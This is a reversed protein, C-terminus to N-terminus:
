SGTPRPNNLLWVDAQSDLHSFLVTRGDRSIDEVLDGPDLMLVPQLQRTALTLVSILPADGSRGRQAVFLRSGDASWRMPELLPGAFLLRAPTGDLPALWVGRDQTRGWYFAISKGDPSQRPSAVFGLSTDVAALSTVQRTGTDALAFGRNGDRQFLVRGDMLWTINNSTTAAPLLTRTGSRPRILILSPPHAPSEIAVALAQGDGSWGLGFAGASGELPTEAMSRLAILLAATEEGAVRVFAITTDDPAFRASYNYATGATLVRTGASPGSALPRTRLNSSEISRLYMLRRGDSTFSLSAMTPLGPTRHGVDLGSAVEESEGRPKCSETLRLRRLSQLAGERRLYYLADGSRPWVPQSLEVSDQLLLHADPGNTSVCAIASRQNELGLLTVAIWGGGPAWTAGASWRYGGPPFVSATDGTALNRILLDRTSRRFSALYRDDASFSPYDGVMPAVFRVAGGLRPVGRVVSNGTSEDAVFRLETGDPSWSPNRLHRGATLWRPTGGGAEQVGLRSSDGQVRTILAILQGDPALSAETVTGLITAQRLELPHAMMARAGRLLFGIAVVGLLASTISLWGPLLPRRPPVPSVGAPTMGSSSTAFPELGDVVEAATAWRDDPRKALCRLLLSALAPPVDPRLTEIPEPDDLVQATLLEHVTAGIFPPRGTLMEYGLIGLAYIDVRHDLAPDATAQEPAMYAPTGLAVGATLDVPAVTADSVAKAVGFDMVVAHRGALMINDPKIDRHVVGKGHAYALADAVDGLIRVVDGLPLRGERALRARLSEGEVFPMVFYLLQSAAPGTEGAGDGTGQWASWGTGMAASGSDLLPLIHPHQLRAVVAIERLFREAALSIAFEPRLIKIAVQRQHKGDEALYVLAMGGGGLERLPQYRDGLAGRLHAFSDNM